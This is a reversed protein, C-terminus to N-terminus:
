PSMSVQTPGWGVYSGISTVNTELYKTRRKKKDDDDIVDDEDEHADDYADIGNDNGALKRGGYSDEKKEFSLTLWRSPQFKLPSADPWNNSYNHLAFLPVQVWTGKPLFIRDTLWVGEKQTVLRMSGQTHLSM